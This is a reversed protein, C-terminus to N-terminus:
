NGHCFVNEGEQRNLSGEKAEVQDLYGRRESGFHILFCLLLDM